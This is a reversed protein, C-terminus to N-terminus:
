VFSPAAANSRRRIQKQRSNALTKEKRRGRRTFTCDQPLDRLGDPEIFEWIWDSGFSLSSPLTVTQACTCRDSKVPCRCAWCGRCTKGFPRPPKAASPYAGSSIPPVLPSSGYPLLISPPVKLRRRAQPPLMRALADRHQRLVALRPERSAFPAATGEAAFGRPTQPLCTTPTPNKRRRFHLPPRRDTEFREACFVFSYWQQFSPYSVQRGLLFAGAIGASLFPL